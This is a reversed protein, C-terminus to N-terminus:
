HRLSDIFQVQNKIKVESKLKRLEGVAQSSLEKLTQDSELVEDNLFILHM